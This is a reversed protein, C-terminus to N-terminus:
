QQMGYRLVNLGIRAADERTYGRCELSDHKELACSLDFESFIVGYRDGIRIGKLEPPVRRLASQPPEGPKGPQPDRRMVTTLDAGGYKNTWIPDRPPINELPNKPFVLGMERRFSEAFAENGCIADAFLLGGRQVYEHLANREGDTLRFANRGHMFVVAYDFFAPDQMGILKPHTEVRINLDHGAQEMLNALARPAADCGGPHLLKAVAFKGREYKDAPGKDVVTEPILDKEKFERNTAYALVNIGIALGGQIKEKVSPSYRDKPGGRSLEWLCALSPKPDDPPNSPAYVVSTRCGYDIGLLLRAQEPPIKQDASWIPHSGDLPKFRYEPKQFVLDMLQRFGKDFDSSCGEGDAFIFGGRDVYDRLNAALKKQAEESQPFPNGGGSFFLVPVQLLDDVSAKAM